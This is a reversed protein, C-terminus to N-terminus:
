TVAASKSSATGLRVQRFYQRVESRKHLLFVSFNFACVVDPPRGLLQQLGERGAAAAAATTSCGHEHANNQM